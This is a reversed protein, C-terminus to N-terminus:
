ATLLFASALVVQTMRKWAPWNRPNQPDDPGDWDVLNDQTEHGIATQDSESSQHDHHGDDSTAPKECASELDAAMIHQQPDPGESTQYQRKDTCPPWGQKRQM